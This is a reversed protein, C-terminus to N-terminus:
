FLICILDNLERTSFAWEASSDCRLTQSHDELGQAIPDMPEPDGEWDRPRASPLSAAAVAMNKGNWSWEVNKEAQFARRREGKAWKGRELGFLGKDSFGPQSRMRLFSGTEDSCEAKLLHITYWPRPIGLHHLQFLIQRGIWSIWTQDRPGPLCGPTPFPLGSWSRQRPFEMSLPVQYAFVRVPSLVCVWAVLCCCCIIQMNSIEVKRGRNGGGMCAGYCAPYRSQTTEHDTEPRVDLVTSDLGTIM